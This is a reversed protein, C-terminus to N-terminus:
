AFHGGVLTNGALEGNLVFTMHKCPKFTGGKWVFRGAPCSCALYLPGAESARVAVQRMGSSGPAEFVDGAKPVRVGVAVGPKPTTVIVQTEAARAERRQQVKAEVAAKAAETREAKVTGKYAAFRVIGDDSREAYEVNVIVTPEVWRVDRGARSQEAPPLYAPVQEGMLGLLRDSEPVTYGTGVKGAVHLKGDVAEAVVLAGLERGIGNNQIAPTWGVVVFPSTTLLKLKLWTGRENFRYPARLPKAIVGELRQQEVLGWTLRGDLSHVGYLVNPHPTAGGASHNLLTELRAKREVYPLATVDQGAEALLDFAVYRMNQSRWAASHLGRAALAQLVPKGDRLAFVEGDLVTGAPLGLAEFWDVVERYDVNVLRGSRAYLRIGDDTVAVLLRHGDWKLEYAWGDRGFPHPFRDGSPPQSLQALMPKVPLTFPIAPM